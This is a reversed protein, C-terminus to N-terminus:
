NVGHSISFSPNNGYSPFSVDLCEIDWQPYHLCQASGAEFAMWFPLPGFHVWQGKFIRALFQVRCAPVQSEEMIEERERGKFCKSPTEWNNWIDARFGWEYTKCWGDETLVFACM